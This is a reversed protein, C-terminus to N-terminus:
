QAPSPADLPLFTLDWRGWGGGGDGEEDDDDEEVQGDGDPNRKREQESCYLYAIRAEWYCYTTHYPTTSQNISQNTSKTQRLIRAGKGRYTPPRSVLHHHHGGGGFRGRESEGRGARLGAGGEEGGAEGESGAAGRQEGRGGRVGGGVGQGSEELHGAREPAAGEVGEPVVAEAGAADPLAADAEEHDGPGREEGEGEGPEPAELEAGSEALVVGDKLERLCAPDADARGDPYSPDGDSGDDADVWGEPADIREDLNGRKRVIWENMLRSSTDM